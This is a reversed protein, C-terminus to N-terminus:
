LLNTVLPVRGVRATGASEAQVFAQQSLPYVSGVKKSQAVAVRLVGSSIMPSITRLSIAALTYRSGTTLPLSASPTQVAFDFFDFLFPFFYPTATGAKKSKKSRATTKRKAYGLV